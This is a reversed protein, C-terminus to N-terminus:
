VLKNKSSNLHERSIIIRQIEDTGAYLQYLKADRMLKEVPYDTNCGSAGFMQVADSACKNAANAAMLKAISAWYTIREGTQQDYRWAAKQYALRSTEVTMAMDAIMFQIVQHQFIPVGFTQREISYKTAEDLARHALGVAGSAISPRTLDFAKMAIKFGSGEVGLINKKPVLVNDFTVGRTDACRQGMNWEKRGVIVGPSDREVIFATFAERTPAKPNPHSRALVFFWNAYGANSIWMKEGNLIWDGDKNKVAKTRVAAVDSGVGPETVAYSCIVLKKNTFRGLYEKKQEDTGFMLVPAQGLFNTTFITAFASCGYGIQESFMCSTLLSLQQGGYRTPVLLNTFGLEHGKQIIEMPYEGTKDYYAAKPIIEDRTFRKALDIVRRQDQTLEFNIGEVFHDQIIKHMTCTAQHRTPILNISPQCRIFSIFHSKSIRIM